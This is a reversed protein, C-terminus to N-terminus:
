ASDNDPRDETLQDLLIREIPPLVQALLPMDAHQAAGLALVAGFDLGYPAGM